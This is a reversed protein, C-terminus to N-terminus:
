KLSFPQFSTQVCSHVRSWISFHKTELEWGWDASRRMKRKGSSTTNMWCLSYGWRSVLGITLFLFDWLAHFLLWVSDTWAVVQRLFLFYFSLCPRSFLHVGDFMFPVGREEEWTKTKLILTEVMATNLWSWVVCLGFWHLIQAIKKTWNVQLLSMMSISLQLVWM